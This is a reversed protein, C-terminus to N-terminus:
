YTAQTNILTVTVPTSGSGRYAIGSLEMEGAGGEPDVEPLDALFAVSSMAFKLSDAGKAFTIEASGYLPASQVATGGTAGTIINRWLLTDDPVVTLGVEIECRGQEADAAEIAGSFFQAEAQRKITIKGGKISAVVPTGSDVDYKFTGGIPTYYNTTDCEDVTPTFSAPASWAGGVAKVSFDIPANEEWSLELEDVKCDKIAYIAADSKKQFFTLYPTSAGLTITHTYPGAGSTSVSGLAGLLYLGIAKQWVRTEFEAGSEVKDRYAGAAALYASTVPDPEQNIGVKLGLGGTMGHAFAPNAPISGKAAQKAVGLQDKAVQIAM